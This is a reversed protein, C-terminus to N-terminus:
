TFRKLTLKIRDRNSLGRDESVEVRGRGNVSILDGIEIDFAPDTVEKWNVKVRGNKIDRSMKSRSDGFGSSAVADLRMSPVTTLIEKVHKTPVILNDESIEEVEVPVEHVKKFKLEIIDKIEEAAVFQATNQNFLIDGIMKRQIGLGMLAGLFDRHSLNQFSFNGDIEFITIFDDLLDPFLFDPFIIIRKREASKYGGVEKYNIDSIQKLLGSAIKRQYPNLFDTAQEKKYKLVQEIKDIIQSGLLKEEEEYLHSLLKEKDLM